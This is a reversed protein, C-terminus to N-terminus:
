LLQDTDDRHNEPEESDEDSQGEGRLQVERGAAAHRAKDLDQYHEADNEGVRKQEQDSFLEPSNFNM